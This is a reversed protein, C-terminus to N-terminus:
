RERFNVWPKVAAQVQQLLSAKDVYEPIISSQEPVMSPAYDNTWCLTLNTGNRAIRKAAGPCAWQAPNVTASLPPMVKTAAATDLHARLSPIASSAVIGNSLVLGLPM